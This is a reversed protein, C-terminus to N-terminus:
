TFLYKLAALSAWLPWAMVFGIALAIAAVTSCILFERVPKM